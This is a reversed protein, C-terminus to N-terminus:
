KNSKEWPKKIEIYKWRRIKAITQRPGYHYEEEKLIKGPIEIESVKKVRMTTLYWWEPLVLGYPADQLEPKVLNDPRIYLAKYVFLKRPPIESLYIGSIADEWTKYLRIRPLKSNIYGRDVLFNHPIAPELIEKELDPNASVLYLGQNRKIIM